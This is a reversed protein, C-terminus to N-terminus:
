DVVKVSGSIIRFIAPSINPTPMAKGGSSIILIVEGRNRSGPSNRPQPLRTTHGLDLQEGPKEKIIPKISPINQSLLPLNKSSPYSQTRQRSRM